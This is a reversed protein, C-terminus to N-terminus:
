SESCSLRCCQDHQDNHLKLYAFLQVYPLVQFNAVTTLRSVDLETISRGGENDINFSIEYSVVANVNPIGEMSRSAHPQGQREEYGTNITVHHEAIPYLLKRDRQFANFFHDVWNVVVQLICM